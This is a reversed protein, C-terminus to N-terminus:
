QGPEGDRRPPALRGLAGARDFAPPRLQGGPYGHDRGMGTRLLRGSVEARADRSYKRLQRGFTAIQPAM